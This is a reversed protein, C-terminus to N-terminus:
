ANVRLEGLRKVLSDHQDRFATRLSLDHIRNPTRVHIGAVLGPNLSVSIVASPHVSSRLWVVLKQLSERDAISAFTVHIVPLSDKLIRLKKILESRDSSNSLDINNQELFSTLQDSMVADSQEFSGGEVSSRVSAATMENDLLEIESVLRSVEIKSVVNPPLAFDAKKNESGSIM